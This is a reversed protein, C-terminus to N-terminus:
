DIKGDNENDCGRRLRCHFHHFFRNFASFNSYFLVKKRAALVRSLRPARSRSKPQPASRLRHLSSSRPQYDPRHATTPPPSHTRSIRGGPSFHSSGSGLQTPVCVISFSGGGADANTAAAIPMPLRALSISKRPYDDRFRDNVGAVPLNSM